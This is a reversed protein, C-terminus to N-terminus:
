RLMLMRRSQAFDGAKLSCFYIGSGLAQGRDDRGDWLVSYRGPGRKGRVLMRVRQGLVNYIGLEATVPGAGGIAFRIETSSNFPNPFNPTLGFVEPREEAKEIGTAAAGLKFIRVTRAPLWLDYARLAAATM